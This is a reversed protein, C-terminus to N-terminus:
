DHAIRTILGLWLWNFGYNGMSFFQFEFISLTFISFFLIVTFISDTNRLVMSTWKYYFIFFSITGILGFEELVGSFFFSKEVPASIPLNFIPDYLIKYLDEPSTPVGFGIGILPHQIFNEISLLIRWGRSIYFIEGTNFETMTSNSDKLAFSTFVEIIPQYMFLSIILSILIFYINKKFLQRIQILYKKKILAITLTILIAIFFGVLSGRAGSKFVLFMISFLCLIHYFDLRSKQLHSHLLLVFFPILIPGVQNPHIFIGSYLNEMAIGYNNHYIGKNYFFFYIILSFIIFNLFIAYLWSLINKLDKLFSFSLIIFSSGCYYLFLKLLSLSLLYNNFNFVNIILISLSFWTNYIFIKNNICFLRHRLFFLIFPVTTIIIRCLTYLPTTYGFITSSLMAIIQVLSFAMLVQEPNKRLSVFVLILSLITKILPDLTIILLIFSIFLTYRININPM